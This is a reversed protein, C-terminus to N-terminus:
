RWLKSVYMMLYAQVLWFASSLTKWFGYQNWRGLAVGTLSTIKAYEQCEYEWEALTMEGKM